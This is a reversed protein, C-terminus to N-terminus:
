HHPREPVHAVTAHVVDGVLVDGTIQIASKLIKAIFIESLTAVNAIKLWAAARQM